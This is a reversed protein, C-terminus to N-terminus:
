DFYCRTEALTYETQNFLLTISFVYSDAKSWLGIRGEIKQKFKFSIYRKDNLYGEVNEGKVVVKLTHWKNSSTFINRIWQVTSHKGKKM